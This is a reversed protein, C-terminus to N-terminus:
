KLASFDTSALFRSEVNAVIAGNAESETRVKNWEPDAGFAKWSAEAAARSKHKLLYFLKDGDNQEVPVWYGVNEMGHREFLKCTHNKFRALLNPMKDPHTTYIRLEYVPGATALSEAIAKSSEASKAVMPLLLCCLAGLIGLLKKMVLRMRLVIKISFQIQGNVGNAFARVNAAVAGLM